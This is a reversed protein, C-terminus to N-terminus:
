ETLIEALVPLHDSPFLGNWTDTLIGHQLVRIDGSVFIYDIRREPVITDFGNWTSAPGHHKNESRLMADYLMLSSVADENNIGMTIIRYPESTAPANFDGTVVVPMAGAIRQVQQLILLASEERAKSGRHDFHTNFHFFVQNNQRDRFKAWTVIRELAADWSKSGPVGPTESLWFTDNELLELRDTKYFIASFEGDNKGDARGVGVWSWEPLREQLEDLMGKLAEQVGILDAHHFRIMSAVNDRRYPWANEGDSPTNYRINFSM